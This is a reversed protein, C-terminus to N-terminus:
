RSVKWVRWLAYSLLSTAACACGVGLPIGAIAFALSGVWLTLSYMFLVTWRHSLGANLLRHHLHRKDAVFPSKGHRLRSFIV